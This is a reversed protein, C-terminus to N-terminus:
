THSNSSKIPHGCQTCYNVGPELPKSCEQCLDRSPVAEELPIYRPQQPQVGPQQMYKSHQKERYAGRAGAFFAISFLPVLPAVMAVPIQTLLSLLIPGALGLSVGYLSLVVEINLYITLGLVSAFVILIYGLVIAGLIRIWHNVRLGISLRFTRTMSFQGLVLLVPLFFYLVQLLPVVVPIVSALTLSTATALAAIITSIFPFRTECDKPVLLNLLPVSKMMHYVALTSLLFTGFFLVFRQVLGWSLSMILLDFLLIIDPIPAFIETAILFELNAIISNVPILILSLTFGGIFFVLVLWRFEHQFLYISKQFADGFSANALWDKRKYSTEVNGVDSSNTAQSPIPKSM